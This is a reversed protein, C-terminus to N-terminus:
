TILIVKVLKFRVCANRYYPVWFSDLSFSNYTPFWVSRQLNELCSCTEGTGHIFFISFTINQDRWSKGKSPDHWREPENLVYISSRMGDVEQRIKTYSLILRNKKRTSSLAVYIFFSHATDIASLLDSSHLLLFVRLSSISKHKM